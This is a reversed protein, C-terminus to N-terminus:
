MPAHPVALMVPDFVACSLVHIWMLGTMSVSCDWKRPGLLVNKANTSCIVAYLLCGLGNPNRSFLIRAGM